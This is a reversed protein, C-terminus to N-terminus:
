VSGMSIIFNDLFLNINVNYKFNYIFKNIIEIKNIIDRTDNNSVIKEISIDFSSCNLKRGILYYLTDFYLYYGFKLFELMCDKLEYLSLNKLIDFGMEEFSAYIDFFKNVYDDVFDLYSDNEKSNYISVFINEYVNDNNILSIIQCRSSITKLVNSANDCILIAIVNDEPEELFKLLSNAASKNLNQVDRIIYIQKEDSVSKMSFDNKLSIIDSKKVLSCDGVIKLNSYNGTDVLNCIKEDYIGDCFFFKALDLSLNFAYSVGRTEILYAHSLHNRDFSSKFYTYFVKQSVSYKDLMFDGM